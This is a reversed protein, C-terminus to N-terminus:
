GLDRRLQEFEDRSIEGRAYRKKAVDLASDVHLGTGPQRLENASPNGDGSGGSSFRGIAWVVLAIITGWLLVTWIMGFVMWWGMGDHMDWM